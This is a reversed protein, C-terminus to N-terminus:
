MWRNEGESLLHATCTRGRGRRFMALRNGHAHAVIMKSPSGRRRGWLAFRSPLFIGDLTRQSERQM